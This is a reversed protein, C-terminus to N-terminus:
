HSCTGCRFHNCFIAGFYAAPILQTVGHKFWTRIMLSHQMFFAISLLADFALLEINNLPLAILHFSGVYIFITFVGIAGVGVLVALIAVMFPLFQM